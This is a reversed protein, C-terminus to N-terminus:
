FDCRSRSRMVQEDGLLLDRLLLVIGCHSRRVGQPGRHLGRLGLRRVGLLSQMDSLAAGVAVPGFHSLRLGNLSGGSGPGLLDLDALGSRLGRLRSQFHGLGRQILGLEIEM